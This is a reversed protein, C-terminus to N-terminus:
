ASCSFDDLMVDAMQRPLMCSYAAPTIESGDDFSQIPRWREARILTHWRPIPCRRM